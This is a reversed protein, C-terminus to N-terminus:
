PFSAYHSFISNEDLGRRFFFKQGNGRFLISLEEDLANLLQRILGPRVTARLERAVFPIAQSLANIADDVFNPICRENDKYDFQPMSTIDIAIKSAPILLIAGASNADCAPSNIM